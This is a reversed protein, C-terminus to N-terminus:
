DPLKNRLLVRTSLKTGDRASAGDSNWQFKPAFSVSIEFIQQSPDSSALKKFAPKFERVDTAIVTKVGKEERVLVGDAGDAGRDIYYAVAVPVTGYRVALKGTQTTVLAAENRSGDAKYCDPIWLNIRDESPITVKLSRRLDLAVYDLLRLQSAQSQVYQQSARFSRQLTVSGTLLTGMIVSSIAGAILIETLTFADQANVVSRICRRM